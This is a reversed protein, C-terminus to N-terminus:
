WFRTVKFALTVLAKPLTKELRIKDFLLHQWIDIDPISIVAFPLKM